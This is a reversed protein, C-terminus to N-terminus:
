LVFAGRPNFGCSLSLAILGSAWKTPLQLALLMSFCSWCVCDWFYCLGSEAGTCSLFHGCALLLMVKAWAVAITCLPLRLCTREKVDLLGLHLWAPFDFDTSSSQLPQTLPFLPEMSIAKWNNEWELSYGGTDLVEILHCLCAIGMVELAWLHFSRNHIMFCKIPNM